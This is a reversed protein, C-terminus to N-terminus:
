GFKFFYIGKILPPLQMRGTSGFKSKVTPFVVAGDGYVQYIALEKDRLITPWVDEPLYVSIKCSVIDKHSTKSSLTIGVFKGARHSSKSIDWPIALFEKVERMMGLYFERTM